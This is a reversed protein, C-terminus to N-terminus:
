PETGLTPGVPKASLMRLILQYEDPSIAAAGRYPMQLERTTVLLLVVMLTLAATMLQKSVRYPLGFFFSFGIVIAGGVSMLLWVGPPSTLRSRALRHRRFEAMRTVAALVTSHLNIEGASVPQWTTTTSWMEDVIATTRPGAQGKRLLPWEENAVADLYDTSLRRLKDAPPSSLHQVARWVDAAANAEHGADARAEDYRDWVAVMATAVLIGYMTGVVVILAGAVEHQERLKQLPVHRLVFAQVFTALTTAGLVAVIGWVWDM